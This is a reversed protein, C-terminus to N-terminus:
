LTKSEFVEFNSVTVDNHTLMIILEPKMKDNGRKMYLKICNYRRANRIMYKKIAPIQNAVFFLVATLIFGFIYM